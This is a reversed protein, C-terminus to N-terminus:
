SMEKEAIANFVFTVREDEDRSLLFPPQQPAVRLYRTGSATFAGWGEMAQYIAEITARPTDYDYAVDRVMVQFGPQEVTTSFEDWPLLGPTEALAIVKDPTAPMRGRIVTYGSPVLSESTLRASLEGTLM